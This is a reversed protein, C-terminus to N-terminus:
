APMLQHRHRLHLPSNSHCWQRLRRPNLCSGLHSFLLTFCPFSSHSSGNLSLSLSLLPTFICDKAHQRRLLERSACPSNGGMSSPFTHPHSLSSCPPFTSPFHSHHPPLTSSPCSAAMNAHNEVSMSTLLFHIGFCLALFVIGYMYRSTVIFM